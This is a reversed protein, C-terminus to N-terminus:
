CKLAPSAIATPSGAAAARLNTRMRDTRTPTRYCSSSRVAIPTASPTSAAAATSRMPSAAPLSRTTGAGGTFAQAPDYALAAAIAASSPLVVYDDGGLADHWNGVAFRGGIM